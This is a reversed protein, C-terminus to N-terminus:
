VSIYEICPQYRYLNTMGGETRKGPRYPIVVTGNRAAMQAGESDRVVQRVMYKGPKIDFSSKVTLGNRSLRAFTTDLLRMEMTKEGGTVFNGNEDFIATTLTVNDVNRDGAKRFHMDKVELHSVVSLR